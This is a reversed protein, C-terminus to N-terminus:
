IFTKWHFSSVNVTNFFSVFEDETVLGDDDVDMNNFIQDINEYKMSNSRKCGMLDYISEIVQLYFSM